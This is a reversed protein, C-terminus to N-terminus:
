ASEALAADIMAPWAPTVDDFGLEQNGADIMSGTPERMATLVARAINCFSEDSQREGILIMGDGAEYGNLSVKIALAIRAIMSDTV